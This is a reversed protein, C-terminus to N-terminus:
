EARLVTIPDVRAARRAPPACALIAASVLAAATIAYTAVDSSAVEFLLGEVVRRSAFAFGMGILLGLAVLALGRGM